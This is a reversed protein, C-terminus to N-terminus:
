WIWLSLETKIDLGQNQKQNQNAIDTESKLESGLSSYEFREKTAAKRPLDKELLLDQDTFFESKSFNASLLASIKATKWDM